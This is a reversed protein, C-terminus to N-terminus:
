SDILPGRRGSTAQRVGAEGAVIAAVAANFEDLDLPKQVFAQVELAKCQAVEDELLGTSFMVVPLRRLGPRQRIARLTAIGDLRPMRIDLVVRDPKARGLADLLAQGDEFFVVEPAPRHSRLAHQILYQDDVADEAWFILPKGTSSRKKSAPM